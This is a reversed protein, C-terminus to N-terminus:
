ISRGDLLEANLLKQQKIERKKNEKINKRTEENFCLLRKFSGTKRTIIGTKTNEFMVSEDTPNLKMNVAEGNSLKEYLKFYDGEFKKNVKYKLGAETMGKMRIHFGTITEGKKNKGQLVDIYSKKGLFLSKTSVVEGVADKLKFDSHFQGLECGILDKKYEQKYLSSLNDIESNILHLSDTDQYFIDINNVSALGMVENMIRKSMSLIIVGAHGINHSSDYSMETIEVQHNNIEKSSIISNFNNFRYNNINENNTTWTKTKQNFINKNVYFIRKNSKKMITKGYCSNMLLKIMEQLADAGAKKQIKREEFLEKVLEGLKPNFGENWYIGDLFEYEINHFKIYDELTLKDVYVIVPEAITNVYEISDKKRIAIFPNKQKKNIKTIRIKIIYYDRDLFEGNIIRKARGCPLGLGERSLRDMAAPYLSVADLANSICDLVKCIVPEYVNVRGGCVSRSIFERTNGSVKYINHYAGNNIMYKHALSSITLSDFISLPQKGKTGTIKIILKDFELLGAKLVLCDYKLYYDYYKNANFTKTLKDYDFSGTDLAEYFIRKEEGSFNLIYEAVSHNNSELTGTKYFNYNIAEKKVLEKPLKFIDTFDKLKKSILKYSDRLEITFGYHTIRVSYYDNDKIIPRSCKVTNRLSAIFDYKLNHFYIIPPHNENHKIANGTSHLKVYNFLKSTWNENANFIKTTIANVAIIGIKYMKHNGECVITETDGFFLNKYDIDANIGLDEVRPNTLKEEYEEDQEQTEVPEQEKFIENLPINSAEYNANDEEKLLRTTDRKFYGDKFLRNVLYLTNCRKNNKYEYTKKGNHVREKIINERNKIDKLKEYNDIFYKNYITDEYVFYHNEYLAINIIETYEKGHTETRLEEKRKKGENGYFHIIIKKKIVNCIKEIDKKTISRSKISLKINNILSENINNLQLTYLLCQEKSHTDNSAIRSIQLRSLDLDTMNEYNFFSGDRNKIEHTPIIEEIRYEKVGEINAYYVADSEYENQVEEYFGEILLKSIQEVSNENLYFQTQEGNDLTIVVMYKKGSLAMIKFDEYKKIKLAEEAKRAKRAERAIAKIRLRERSNIVNYVRRINPLTAGIWKKTEPNFIEEGWSKKRIAKFKILLEEKTIREQSKM